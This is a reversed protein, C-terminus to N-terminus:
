NSSDLTVLAERLANDRDAHTRLNGPKRGGYHTALYSLAAGLKERQLAEPYADAPRMDSLVFYPELTAQPLSPRALLSDMSGYLDLTTGRISDFFRVPSNRDGSGKDPYFINHVPLLTAVGKHEGIIWYAEPQFIKRPCTGVYLDHDRRLRADTERLLAQEALLAEGVKADLAPVVMIDLDHAENESLSSGFLGVYGLKSMDTNLVAATLSGKFADREKMRIVRPM